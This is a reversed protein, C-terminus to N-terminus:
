PKSEDFNPIERSSLPIDHNCTNLGLDELPTKDLPEVEISIKIIEKVEDPYTVPPTNKEFLPLVQPTSKTKSDEVKDWTIGIHMEVWVNENRFLRKAKAKLNAVEQEFIINPPNDWEKQGKVFNEIAKWAEEVSLERLNGDVLKGLLSPLSWPLDIGTSIAIASKSDCYIPVKDYFFGYDMLQTRMWLVQACCGFVAVYKSEATSISVCNQKKSSWCVMKDGLFQVSGSTSKRDLHCGVHDADSYATLDFGSHNPYCLGLNITWKLYRFIRKVASVHHENPYAQYRACMCTAFMIDPRSSTVYMLSGIMSRYDTHDVLKGVLDLKLKAQEVMPTPVKKKISLTTDILGKQLGSEILFQSLIDYWARPAQKLGYLAKDLAYVHDPYQKSVFGPPQGVYVEEKLIENLFTTKIDMQFVTFDKHAAYALFLRIAEILAVPAFTEDYDIEEQQSYGVAVLRAKNRIVLSSEDKKNKFIWKTKIVSKSAEDGNPVMNIPISQTNTQPLIVAKPSQQVDDNLSSSSSEGQFSQSVEHFVEDNISTAVNTTFSKMIKSSDFYEDYFDQFLDELDKKSEEYVKSVSPNSSKGTENLNSLGPELSFRKSAMESLEDFNVNVSEHIKRTQKNYIRFSVSEKSYGVFVGIDGVEDFFKALTKNKFETGNDTRVRQVQLQLNVQTKKIKQNVSVTESSEVGKSKLSKITELNLKEKELLNVVEDELDIIIKELIVNSVYPKLSSTQQFPSDIKDFDLNTIEQFYDDKLNIKENVYSANLNEYDYAFEIKNERSRKFKQIDLTEDSHTLFMLTYGLGIVKEDYLTPRLDKAKEFYSPNEFGIGKRGNYLNHKSPMIMHVTQNTQGMKHLKNECVNLPELCKGIELDKNRVCEELESIKFDKELVTIKLDRVHKDLEVLQVSMKDYLVQQDAIQKRHQKDNDFYASYRIMYEYREAKTQALLDNNKEILEKLQENLEKNNMEFTTTQNKLVDYKDQLDKNQNEFDKRQQNTKEVHNEYIKEDVSSSSAESDSLVKEIQAKFVMNANIEQDSDSSSKMWAQDEALLVQEDKDKKALLMKTKYYEYDKFKAKKCNKAFYGEKKCNYCKVRSMDKKKEEDKKEVRKNDTTVFEQKKNASQSPSSTRLYNNTRKSYFKRQNFAKALLATINKLESFDDAESGESDSSVIVKEESRSVNTKEAILALPDYTVVITKKKSGIADNVDGQNKKLINYLADINIYNDKSYGCKKLDNIVQLYRIYTDLLLEGKTAKFMEYEYLVAAKRDQKGYEFGLMHRVLADWLDKATKSSDILYYIDNPLGQILLSRALRNIKQVRKEQDSWRSKDELPPQETSTTGAISVQTVRPLPQDSNKISNIMAEENTQEDLYNMFRKVWQSYEGRYLLPIRMTSGVTLMDRSM